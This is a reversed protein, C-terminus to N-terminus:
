FLKKIEELKNEAAKRGEKILEEIKTIDTRRIHFVKPRIAVDAQGDRFLGKEYDSSIVRLGILYTELFSFHGNAYDDLLNLRKM